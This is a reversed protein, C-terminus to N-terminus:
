LQQNTQFIALAQQYDEWHNLNMLSHLEPDVARLSETDLRRTRVRDLLAAARRENQELLEAVLSRVDTRYVAALPHHFRGREFPVVVDFEDTLLHILHQVFRTSLLPVDCSTVYAAEAHPALCELGALLGELPGRDPRRDRALLVHGPLDPLDQQPAAVVVIPQACQSMLRVVRQLLFENGFPLLAKPRGMRQSKGGCLVIGGTRAM